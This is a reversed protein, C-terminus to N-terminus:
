NKKTQDATKKGGTNSTTEDDKPKTKNLFTPEDWYCFHWGSKTKKITM